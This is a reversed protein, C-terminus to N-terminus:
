CALAGFLTGVLLGTASQAQAKHPMSSMRHPGSM